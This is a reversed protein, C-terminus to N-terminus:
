WEDDWEDAGGSQQPTSYYPSAHRDQRYIYWPKAFTKVGPKAGSKEGSKAGSEEVPKAALKPVQMLKLVISHYDTKDFFDDYTTTFKIFDDFILKDFPIQGIYDKIQAKLNASTDNLNKRTCEAKAWAMCANVIELASCDSGVLLQLVKYFLKQDCELFGSSSCIQQANTKIRDECFRRVDNLELLVALGYVSCTEGLTVFKKIAIECAKTEKVMGYKKCLNVIEVIHKSPLTVDTKYFFQLFTKFADPSANVILIDGKEQISGYFMARFAESAASLIAKHVPFYEFRVDDIRIKFRADATKWDLYLKEYSRYVSVTFKNMTPNAM